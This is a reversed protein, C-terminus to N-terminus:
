GLSRSSTYPLLRVSRHVCRSLLARLLTGQRDGRVINFSLPHGLTGYVADRPAGRRLSRGFRAIRGPIRAPGTKRSGDSCGFSGITPGGGVTTPSDVIRLHVAYPFRLLVRWSEQIGAHRLALEEM